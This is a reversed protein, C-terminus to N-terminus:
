KFIFLLGITALLGYILKEFTAAPIQKHIMSGLIVGVGIAPLSALYLGIVPETWLGTLGHSVVVLCNTLFFYGQLNIHYYDPPWRRLTGYMIIPPGNTNYAGGLIGATFGFMGAWKEDRLQPLSFGGVGYLGYLMLLIGLILKALREPAIHILVLGFPIGILTAGILRWMGRFSLTSWQQLLVTLATTVGMLAVLPTAIRLETVLVLLPMAVLADGFGVASRVLTSLFLISVILWPSVETEM